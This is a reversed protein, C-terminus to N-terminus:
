GGLNGGFRVTATRTRQMACVLLPWLGNYYAAKALYRSGKWIAMLDFVVSSIFLAIPFHILLSQQAHKALLASKLDFLNM